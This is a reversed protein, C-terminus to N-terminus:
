TSGRGRASRGTSPDSGTYEFWDFRADAAAAGGAASGASGAPARPAACAGLVLPLLAAAARRLTPMPIM